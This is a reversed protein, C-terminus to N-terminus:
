KVVRIADSGQVMPLVNTYIHKTLFEGKSNVIAVKNNQVVGFLGNNINFVSQFDGAILKQPKESQSYLSWTGNNKIPIAGSDPYGIDEYNFPIVERGDKDVLGAKSNRIAPSFGNTNFGGIKDYGQETLEMGKATLETGANAFVFFKDGKKVITVGWKPSYQAIDDYNCPVVIEGKENYLGYKENKAQVKYADDSHYRITNFQFPIVVKGKDDIAGNQGMVHQKYLSLLAGGEDWMYPETYIYNVILKGQKNILGSKSSYNGGKSVIIADKFGKKSEISSYLSSFPLILAGTSSNYVGFQSKGNAKRRVGVMGNRVFYVGEFGTPKFQEGTYKYVYVGSKIGTILKESPYLTYASSGNGMIPILPLITKGGKGVVKCQKGTQTVALLSESDFQYIKDYIIPVILAGTNDIIGVKGAKNAIAYGNETFQAISKYSCPVQETVSSGTFKAIGVLASQKQQANLAFAACLFLLILTIKKM